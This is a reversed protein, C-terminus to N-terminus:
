DKTDYCLRRTVIRIPFHDYIQEGDEASMTLLKLHAEWRRREHSCRLGKVKFHWWSNLRQKTKEVTKTRKEFANSHLSDTVDIRALKWALCM